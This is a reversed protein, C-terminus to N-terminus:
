ELMFFTKYSRPLILHAIQDTDESDVRLIMLYQLIYRLIYFSDQDSLIDETPQDPDKSTAYAGSTM